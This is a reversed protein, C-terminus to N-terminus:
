DDFPGRGTLQPNEHLHLNTLAGLQGLEAPIAGSLSNSALTIQVLAGLQGLEAPIPIRHQFNVCGRMHHRRTQATACAHTSTATTDWEECCFFVVSFV